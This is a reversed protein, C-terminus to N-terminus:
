YGPAAVTQTIIPKTISVIPPTNPVVSIHVPASTTVLGSNDTAKATVTYKGVPVDKWKFEYPAATVTQLFYTGKYFEVKIVVGDADFATASLKINAPALYTANNVPRRLAVTPPTTSCSSSEEM